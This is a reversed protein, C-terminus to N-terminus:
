VVVRVALHVGLLHPRRLNVSSSSSSSIVRRLRPSAVDSTSRRRLRNVAIYVYVRVAVRVVVLCLFRFAAPSLLRQLKQFSIYIIM